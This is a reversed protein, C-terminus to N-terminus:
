REGRTIARPQVSRAIAAIDPDRDGEGIRHRIAQLTTAYDHVDPDFWDPLEIAGYDALRRAIISRVGAIIHGPEVYRSRGLELPAGVIHRLALDANAFSIGSLVEAWADPTLEDMVQSPCYAKVKRLLLLTETRNM